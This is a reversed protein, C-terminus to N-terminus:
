ARLSLATERTFSRKKTQQLERVSGKAFMFNNSNWQTGIWLAILMILLICAFSFGTLYLVNRMM